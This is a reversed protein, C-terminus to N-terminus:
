PKEGVGADGLPQGTDVSPENSPEDPSERESAETAEPQDVGEPNDGDRPEKKRARKEQRKKQKAIERRRKEQAHASRRKAM